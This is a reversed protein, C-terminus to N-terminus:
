SGPLCRGNPDVACSGDTTATAPDPPPPPVVQQALWAAFDSWISSFWGLVSTRAEPTAAKEQAVLHSPVSALAIAIVSATFIKRLITM